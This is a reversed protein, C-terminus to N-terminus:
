DPEALLKGFTKCRSAGACDIPSSRRPPRKREYTVRDERSWYALRKMRKKEEAGAPQGRSINPGVLHQRQEHKSSPYSHPVSDRLRVVVALAGRSLSATLVSPRSDAM